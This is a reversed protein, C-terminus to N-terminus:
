KLFLFAKGKAVNIDSRSVCMQWQSISKLLKAIIAFSPCECDCIEQTITAHFFVFVVVVKFVIKLTGEHGAAFFYKLDFYHPKTEELWAEGPTAANPTVEGRTNAELRTSSCLASSDVQSATHCNRANIGSRGTSGARQLVLLQM